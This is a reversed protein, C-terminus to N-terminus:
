NLNTERIKKLNNGKQILRLTDERTGVQHLSLNQITYNNQVEKIKLEM